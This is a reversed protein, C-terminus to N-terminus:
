FWKKSEFPDIYDIEKIKQKPLFEGYKRIEMLLSRSANRELHSLVCQEHSPINVELTMKKNLYICRKCQYADCIKCIPAHDIKYLQSNPIYLKLDLNGISNNENDIYFAPCIYFQGNPALTITNWGANCNNMKDLEMRDTLINLQPNEGKKFLDVFYPILAELIKQYIDMESPTIQEIDTFVINLRCVEGIIEILQQWNDIFKCLSTRLVYTVAKNFHYDRFLDWDNFVRINVNGKYKASAIKIHDVTEIIDKYEHPLEYDPYVFQVMLNEKMSFIIGKKLIDLPMLFRSDENISYHCYSTSSKDLLVILYQLM